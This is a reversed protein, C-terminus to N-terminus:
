KSVSRLAQDRPLHRLARPLRPYVARTIAMICGFFRRRAPSWPLQFAQRISAPLLGATVLRALPMAATLWLPAAAPHLLAAAVRRITEDTQLTELEHSFYARFAARDAPWMERPVQLATGLVAYDQYIREASADDLAGYVREHMDIASDYLTAAVWLQLRPDFASYSPGVADAAGRVPGHARSVSRVVADVQASTGYVVTYVYELTRALRDLPRAAFDSHEAVGRGVAPNALQLLIARGAAGVLVSEAAIDRIGLSGSETASSLPDAM